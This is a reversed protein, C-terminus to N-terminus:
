PKVLPCYEGVLSWPMRVRVEGSPAISRGTGGSAIAIVQAFGTGSVLTVVNKFDVETAAKLEAETLDKKHRFFRTYISEPELNRFAESVRGKDEAWIARIRVATGKKLTEIEDYESADIM